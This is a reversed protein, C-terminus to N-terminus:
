TKHRYIHRESFCIRYCELWPTRKIIPHLSPSGSAVAFLGFGVLVAIVAIILEKTLLDPVQAPAALLRWEGQGGACRPRPDRKNQQSPAWVKEGRVFYQGGLPLWRLHREAPLLAALVGPFFIYYGPAECRFRAEAMQRKLRPPFVMRAERDLPSLHMALVIALNFPNNEFIFLDGGPKLVRQLERLIAPHDDHPIHHFTGNSYVLDFSADPVKEALGAAAAGIGCGFDLLRPASLAGM